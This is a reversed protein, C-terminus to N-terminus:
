DGGDDGETEYKTIITHVTTIATPIGFLATTLLGVGATSLTLAKDTESLAGPLGEKKDGSTFIIQAATFMVKFFNLFAGAVYEGVKKLGDWIATFLGGKEVSAIVAALTPFTEEFKAKLNDMMGQFDMAAFLGELAIVMPALVIMWKPYKRIVETFREWAASLAEQIGSLAENWSEPTIKRLFDWFLNWALRFGADVKEGLWDTVKEFVDKFFSWADSIFIKFKGWFNVLESGSFEFFSVALNKMGGVINKFGEKVMDFDLTIIGTGLQSAGENIQGLGEQSKDSSLFERWKKYIPIAFRLMAIAFPKIFLGIADGIPRLLVEFSKKLINISSALIPSSKTLFDFGAKMIQAIKELLLVGGALLAGVDGVIPFDLGHLVGRIGEAASQQRGGGGGTGGGVGAAVGKMGSSDLVLKAKITPEVM